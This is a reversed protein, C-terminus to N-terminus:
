RGSGAPAAAPERLLLFGVATSLLAAIVILVSSVTGVTAPTAAAGALARLDSPGHVVVFSLVIALAPALLLRVVKPVVNRVRYFGGLRRDIAPGFLALAIVSVLSLAAVVTATGALSGTRGRWLLFALGPAAVAIPRLWAPLRHWLGDLHLRGAVPPWLLILAAALLVGPIVLLSRHGLWDVWGFLLVFLLPVWSRRVASLVTGASM